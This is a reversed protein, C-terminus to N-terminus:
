KLGAKEIARNVWATYIEKLKDTKEIAVEKLRRWGIVAMYNPQWDGGVYVAYSARNGITTTYHAQEVYFQTGYRESRPGGRIYRSGAPPDPYKQLGNSEIIEKASEKGAADLAEQLHAPFKSILESIKDIGSVDIRIDAM